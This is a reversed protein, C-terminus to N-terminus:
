PSAPMGVGLRALERGLVDLDLWRVKSAAGAIVLDSGDASLALAQAPGGPIDVKLLRRASAWDWVDLAEGGTFLRDGRPDFVIARVPSGITLSQVLERRAFRRIEVKGESTGTALLEGNRSLALATLPGGATACTALRKKSAVDLFLLRGDTAAVLLVGATPHFALRRFATGKKDDRYTWVREGEHNWLGVTGDTSASALLRGDPSFALATIDRTHGLLARLFHGDRRDWLLIAGEDGGSAVLGAGAHQAVCAVAALHGPPPIVQLQRKATLDWLRILGQSLVAVHDGDPDIRLDAFYTLRPRLRLDAYRVHWDRKRGDPDWTLSPVALRHRTQGTHPDWIWLQGARQDITGLWRSSPDFRRFHHTAPFSLVCRGSQGDWVGCRRRAVTAGDRDKVQTNEELVFYRGSPSVAIYEFQGSTGELSVAKDRGADDLTVGGAGRWLAWRLKDDAALLADAKPNVNSGDAWKWCTLKETQRMSFQGIWTIDEVVLPLAARRDTFKGTREGKVSEAVSVRAPGVALGTSQGYRRRSEVLYIHARDATVNLENTGPVLYTTNAFVGERLLKKQKLDWLQVCTAYVDGNGVWFGQLLLRSNDAVVHVKVGRSRWEIARARGRPVQTVPIRTGDTASWLTLPYPVENINGPGVCVVLAGALRFASADVPWDGPLGQLTCVKRGSTLDIVQGFPPQSARAFPPGFPGYGPGIVLLRKEEADFRPEAIPGPIDVTTLKKLDPLRWIEGRGQPRQVVVLWHGSPSFFTSVAPQADLERAGVGQSDVHLYANARHVNGATRQVGHPADSYSRCDRGAYRKGTLWTKLAPSRPADNAQQYSGLRGLSKGLPVSWLDLTLKGGAEDAVVAFRGQPDRNLIRRPGAAPFVHRSQGTQGHFVETAGRANQIVLSGADFHWSPYHGPIESAKGPIGASWRRQTGQWLDVVHDFGGTVLLGDSALDLARIPLENALFRKWARPLSPAWLTVQAIEKGDTGAVHDLTAVGGSCPLLESVVNTPTPHTRSSGASATGGWRTVTVTGKGAGPQEFLFETAALGSVRDLATLQAAKNTAAQFYLCRTEDGFAAGNIKPSGQTGRWLVTREPRGTLPRVDLWLAEPDNPGAGFGFFAAVNPTQALPHEQRGFNLEYNEARWRAAAVIREKAAAADQPSLAHYAAKGESLSWTVVEGATRFEIRDPAVFELADFNLGLKFSSVEAPLPLRRVPGGDTPVLLLETASLYAVAVQSRDPSVATAHSSILYYPGWATILNRSEDHAAKLAPGHTAPPPPLTVTRARGLGFTTLWRATENRLELRRRAWGEPDTRALAGAADGLARLTAQAKQELAAAKAILKLAEHQRDEHYTAHRVVRAKALYADAASHYSALAARLADGKAREEAQRAETQARANAEADLRAREARDRQAAEDQRADEIWLTTAGLAVVGTLLLAAAGAVTARHRRGWRALRERGRERYVAVPEDALWHEVDAALDQASAYRDAPRLAMAKLCIAELSPPVTRNRQRPPPFEGRMVREMVENSTRGEVPAYGTLLAYLMAGLSYIDSAPGIENWRGAAQEPSMYAPTGLAKGAQTQASDATPRLTEEGSRREEETREVPRALGWDVVLTEGFRGLLVNGPKLDRHLIGRSRAYAITNCVAVFRGLLQRLALSREGPDRGPRDLEHFRRIEDFLTKGEIFRMAYCPRGAEDRVLGYVPVVGPHELRGTVEAEWLFRRQSDPDGACHEQMRKLAVERNLEEDWALFVEGLGGRAHFRLTRYRLPGGAFAPPGPGPEAAAGLLPELAQLNRLEAKVAELLEPCDRCLEEASVAQGQERLEEYRLLLDGIHTADPM